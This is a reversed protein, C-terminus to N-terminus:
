VGGAGAVGAPCDRSHFGSGPDARKSFAGHDIGEVPRGMRPMQCNNAVIMHFYRLALRPASANIHTLRRSAAFRFDNTNAKPLPHFAKAFGVAQGRTRLGQYPSRWDQGSVGRKVDSVGRLNHRRPDNDDKEYEEVSEIARTADVTAICGSRPKEARERAPDTPDNRPDARAKRRM